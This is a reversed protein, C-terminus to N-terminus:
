TAENADARKIAFIIDAKVCGLIIAMNVFHHFHAYSLWWLLLGYFIASRAWYHNKIYILPFPLLMVALVVGCYSLM